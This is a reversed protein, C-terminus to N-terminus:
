RILQFEPLMMVAWLLDALGDRSPPTGVISRAVIREADVPLRALAVSYIQDILADADQAGAALRHEAGQKLLKDLLEGNTLELAELTTGISERRTVVQERNTRGLARLLADDNALSSRVPWGQAPAAAGALRPLREALNLSAYAAPADALEVAHQWGTTDFGTGTWGSDAKKAWLWTGDTGLTWLPTSQELGVAFLLVAAPNAGVFQTGRNNEADPWNTAEIALVNDGVILLPALDVVAPQQWDASEAALRGNVYLKLENDCVALAPARGPRADLHFKKRLLIRGGPDASLAGAHSWIWRATGPVDAHAAGA